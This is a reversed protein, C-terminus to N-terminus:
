DISGSKALIQRLQLVRHCNDSAAEIVVLRLVFKSDERSYSVFAALDPSSM